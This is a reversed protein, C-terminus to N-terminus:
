NDNLENINSYKYFDEIWGSSELSQYFTGGYEKLSKLLNEIELCDEYSANELDHITNSFMYIKFYADQATKIEQEGRQTPTFAKKNTTSTSTNAQQSMPSPSTNKSNEYLAYGSAGVGVIVTSFLVINTTSAFAGGKLKSLLPTFVTLLGSGGLFGLLSNSNFNLFIDEEKEYQIIKEKLERKATFIRSKITGEPIKLKQSIEKSTLQEFYFMEMVERQGKPLLGLLYVMVDRDSQFRLTKEPTDKSIYDFESELRSITDDNYIVHKNKRFLRVSQNFTIRKMWAPFYEYNQLTSLHEHVTIMTMQAIDHADAECKSITYAYRFALPYFSRYLKEYAESDGDICKKITEILEQKKM